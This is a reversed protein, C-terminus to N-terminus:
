ALFRKPLSAALAEPWDHHEQYHMLMQIVSDVNLVPAKKCMRDQSALIEPIPLRATKVQARSASHLSEHKRISRDVIGGIVYVNQPHVDTLVTDADPSLYIIEPSDFVQM